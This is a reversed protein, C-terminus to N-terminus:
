EEAELLKRTVVESLMAVCGAEIIAQIEIELDISEKILMAYQSASLSSLGLEFFNDLVGVNEVGINEKLLGLLVEEVEDRPAVYQASVGERSINMNISTRDADAKKEHLERGLNLLSFEQRDFCYTPMHIKRYKQEQLTFFDVSVGMEWLEALKEMFFCYQCQKYYRGPLVDMYIHNKEKSQQKALDILTKGSGIEIFVAEEGMLLPQVSQSFLVPNLIHKKWYESNNVQGTTVEQATTNSILTMDPDRLEYKKLYQAFEKAAKQMMPTHFAHSTKLPQSLIKKAALIEEAKAIAEFSGGLVVAEPANVASIAAEELKLKNVTEVSARVALMKGREANQFFKGRWYVIDLGEEFTMVGALCAGVYEGLSHGIIKDPRIGLSMLYSGLAYSVLFILPQAYETNKIREQAELVKEEKPYLLELFNEQYKEQLFTIGRDVVARFAAANEYLGKAMNVYQSGQGTVLFYIPRKKSKVSKREELSRKLKQQLDEKCSSVVARRVGFEARGTQLTAAARGLETNESKELWDSMKELSMFLSNQTKASFPFIFSENQGSVSEKQAPAEELIMHANTGGIGFSSVAVRAREDKRLEVPLRNIYFQSDALHLQENEKVFDDMPPIIGHRLVLLAKIFGAIGSATNLHGINSKVSGIACFNRKETQEGYVQSIAKLELLDGIETATGHAEVYQITEVAVDAAVLCDRIVAAQGVPSPATFGVKQNGDNNVASGKIVAYIDDGDRQADALRKLVVVGVGDSFITGDSREEFPRCHGSKSFIMGKRYKYGQKVPYSVSVGGAVAMDCDGNMLGQCAMHVAVLSTSCTSQVAMAPGTLNLKYAVRTALLDKDSGLMIDFDDYQQLVDRQIARLLYTNMGSGAYTGVRGKFRSIINGSDEVAKWAEELFVRAQPDMVMAEKATYDFFGADFANPSDIIGKAGIYDESEAEMKSVGAKLLEEKTFHRIGEKGELLNEWLVDVSEAKPFRGSVGVVAILDDSKKKGRNADEQKDMSSGHGGQCKLFDYLTHITPYTFIDLVTVETKLRETMKQQLTMALLSTGGIDFFNDDIDFDFNGLVEKWIGFLEQYSGKDEASKEGSETLRKGQMASLAKRDIKQNPTQPILDVQIYESPIMYPTLEKKCFAKIEQLFDKKEGDECVVYAVLRQEKILVACNKIGEFRNLVSEIEGLEIRYGSLKVQDDTRGIVQIEGNNLYKALDGTDYVRKEVGDLKINLFREKTLEERKYYGKGLGTGALFLKGPVNKQVIEYEEDFIYAEMNHLPLGISVVKDESSLRKATAWITAETPGYVNWVKTFRSTLERALEKSVMEGGVLIEMEQYGKWGMNLVMTWTTATAQFVNIGFQRICDDFLLADTVVRKTLLSSQGGLTLPLLFELISIDFSISTVGGINLDKKEELELIESMSQLFNVLARHQIEVGKPKGTSGSTFIIYASDEPCVGGWVASEDSAQTKLVEEMCVAHELFVEKDILSRTTIIGASSTCELIYEIRKRPFSTDVPVYVAGVKMISLFAIIVEAQKDMYVVILDGKKVGSKRLYNALINVKDQLQQYTISKEEDRVAIRTPHQKIVEEIMEIVNSYERFQKKRQGTQYILDHREQEEAYRLKEIDVEANELIRELLRQYRGAYQEILERGFIERNYKFLGTFGGKHEVLELALDIQDLQQEVPFAEINYGLKTQMENRNQDMDLENDFVRKALYNFTTQFIPYKKDRSPNIEQVLLSYPVRKNLMADVFVANIEKACQLFNSEMTKMRVPLLNTFNGIINKYQAARRLSVPVGVVVDRKGYVQFLFLKYITLFFIFPSIHNKECLEYIKLSEKESIQFEVKAGATGDPVGQCTEVDFDLGKDMDKLTDKWYKMKSNFKESLVFKREAEVFKDYSAVPIEEGIEQNNDLASYIKIFDNLFIEVSSFDVIIHHIVISILDYDKNQYLYIRLLHDKQLNYSTHFDKNVKESVLAEDLQRVDTVFLDYEPTENIYQYLRGNESVFRTKLIKHKTMLRNLAAVLLKEEFKQYFKFAIGVNYATSSPNYQQMFFLAQQGYSLEYRKM